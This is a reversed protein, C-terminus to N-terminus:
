PFLPLCLLLSTQLAAVVVLSTHLKAFPAGARFHQYVGKSWSPRGHNKGSTWCGFFFFHRFQFLRCAAWTCCYYCSILFVGRNTACVLLLKYPPSPRKRWCWWPAGFQKRRIRLVNCVCSLYSIGFSHSIKDVIVVLSAPAGRVWSSYWTEVLFNVPMNSNMSRFM